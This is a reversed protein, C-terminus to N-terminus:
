IDCNKFCIYEINAYWLLDNYIGHVFLNKSFYFLYESLIQLIFIKTFGGFPKRNELLNIEPITM